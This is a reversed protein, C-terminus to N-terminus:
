HEFTLLISRTLYPIQLKTPLFMYSVTYKERRMRIWCFVRSSQSTNNQLIDASYGKMIYVEVWSSNVLVKIIITLNELKLATKATITLNHTISEAPHAEEPFTLDIIVGAGYFSVSNTTSAGLECIQGFLFFLTVFVCVSSKIRM